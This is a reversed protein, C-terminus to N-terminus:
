LRPAAADGPQGGDAMPDGPGARTSRSWRGAGGAPERGAVRPHLLQLLLLPRGAGGCGLVFRYRASKRGSRAAGRAASARAACVAAESNRWPRGEAPDRRPGRRCAQRHGRPPASAARSGGGRRAACSHATVTRCRPPRRGVREPLTRARTAMAGSSSAVGPVLRRRRPDRRSALAGCVRAGRRPGRRPRDVGSASAAARRATSGRGRGASSRRALHDLLGLVLDGRALPRAMARWAAVASGRSAGAGRAAWSAARSDVSRSAVPAAPASISIARTSATVADLSAPRRPPWGLGAEDDSRHVQRAGTSSSGTPDFDGDRRSDGSPSTVASARHRRHRISGISSAPYAPRARQISASV